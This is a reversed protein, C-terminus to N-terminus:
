SSSDRPSLRGYGQAITAIAAPATTTTTAAITNNACPVNSKANREDGGVLADLPSGFFTCGAGEALSLTCVSAEALTEVGADVLADADEDRATVVRDVTDTGVREVAVVRGFVAVVLPDESTIVM